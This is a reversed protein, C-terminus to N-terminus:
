RSLDVEYLFRTGGILKRNHSTSQVFVDYTALHAPKVKAREGPRLGIMRRAEDGSYMDGTGKTRLVVEKKEQILETKTFEYFGRGAKFILGNEEVFDRISIDSLVHLIQFRGFPVASLSRPTRAFRESIKRGSFRAFNEDVSRTMRGASVIEQEWTKFRATNGQDYCIAMILDTVESFQDLTFHYGGTMRALEEYFADAHRGKNLCQVTHVVVGIKALAAAEERWDLGRGNYAVNQRDHPSHPVDDGILVFVKRASHSWSYKRAEHLVLEYCEPLDGGNTNELNRIFQCLDHISKSLDHRSTVYTRGEDCYDGNAGIGVRLDPIEKFLTTLSSEIKRRVELICPYVSGTTDTHLVAEVSENSM